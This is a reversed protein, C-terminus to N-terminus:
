KRGGKTDKRRKPKTAKEVTMRGTGTYPSMPRRRERKAVENKVRQESKEGMKAELVLGTETKNVVAKVGEERECEVRHSYGLQFERVQGKQGRKKSREYVRYGTGVRTREAKYSPEKKKSEYVGGKRYRRERRRKICRLHVIGRRERMRNKKERKAGVRESVISLQREREYVANESKRVKRNREYGKREKEEAKRRKQKRTERREKEGKRRKSRAEGSRRRKKSRMKKNSDNSDYERM